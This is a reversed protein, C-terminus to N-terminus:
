LVLNNVFDFNAILNLTQTFILIGLIVLLAGFAINIYRAATAYKNILRSAPAAFLGIALFPLGLGISYAM